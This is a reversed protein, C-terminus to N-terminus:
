EKAAAAAPLLICSGEDRACLEDTQEQNGTDDEPENRHQRRSMVQQGARDVDHKHESKRGEEDQKTPPALTNAGVHTLEARDERNNSQARTRRPPLM